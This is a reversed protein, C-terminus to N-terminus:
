YEIGCSKCLVANLMTKRGCIGCSDKKSSLRVTVQGIKSVMVKTKMLNVELGKSDLASKWGYINEQLEAMSEAILVIDGAYLIEQLMGYRIENTAVDVVIAFLLPSLVSGEHVGVNVELEESFHTGVKVRTRAGTYLSLVVTVLAEPIGKKRMPWEVDKRPVGDIAEEMDVLCMYLKKQEALYEEQIRRLIVVADITGKGPVFDFPM